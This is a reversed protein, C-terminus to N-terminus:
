KVTPNMLKIAECITPYVKSANYYDQQAADISIGAKQYDSNKQIAWAGAALIASSGDGLVGNVAGTESQYPTTVGMVFRDAPVDKVVAMQVKFAMEDTNKAAHAYIILYSCESLITKNIVNQPSGKFLLAKGPTAAKWAAIVDFFAGQRATEAAIEEEDVLSALDSGTYNMEVGDLGMEDCLALMRTTEAKCYEIFRTAPDVEPEVPTETDEEGGEGEEPAPNKAAEEEEAALIAKWDTEIKDMDVLGVVKTGKKHVEAIEARNVGNVKEIANLCIYDVSDPLDTLHEARSVPHTEKNDFSVITVFHEGAKYTKLNELYKAYLEPNQVNIDPENLDVSEIETWDSCSAMLALTFATSLIKISKNIM